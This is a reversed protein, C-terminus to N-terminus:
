KILMMRRIVTEESTSLRYIYLGSALNDPHWTVFYEGQEQTRDVLVKVRQGLVNFVELLVRTRQPIWYRITTSANFPNPFNPYVRFRNPVDARSPATFTFIDGQTLSQYYYIYFDFSNSLYDREGRPWYAYLVDANLGWNVDNYDAGQNYDSLMIFFYERAGMDDPYTHEGSTSDITSLWGMDWRRNPPAMLSDEVFCVNVQRPNQPDSIDFATFPLYGTGAYAYGQDRRYLAGRSAWGEEPGGTTDGQFHLKVSVLQDPTIDPPYISGLAPISLGPCYLSQFNVGATWPSGDFECGSFGPAPAVVKVLIGDVIPYAGEGTINTLGSVKVEGTTRDTVEWRRQENFTVQYSHGTLAAPNIVVAILDGEGEGDHIVSLTDGILATYGPNDGQAVVTQPKFNSEVSPLIAQSDPHTLVATVAFHYHKGDMLPEGTLYDKEIVMYRQLGSPTYASKGPPSFFNTDPLSPLNTRSILGGPKQFTAILRAEQRSSKATPLQWVRYGKFYYGADPYDREIVRISPPHSGWDLVIRRNMSTVNVEPAPVRPTFQPLLRYFQRIDRSNSKLTTVSSLYDEGLGGALAFVVEQTDWPQITFPGSGLLIRVDRPPYNNGTGDIDGTGSVPDGSLPFKTTQGQHPGSGIIFPLTEGDLHLGNLWNYYALTWYYDDLPPPDWNEKIKTYGFSTMPLNKSNLKSKFNFLATDNASPVVPGQLLVYGIAPPALGFPTFQVDQNSGNYVFGMDLTTDCGALDDTYNGLDSDSWIGFFMSDITQTSKNIVRYRRFNTQKLSAPGKNYGWLTVQVELGLPPSGFSSHATTTDLDNVVFWIVQDAGALGPEEGLQPEFVGNRNDDYFPAGYEVPWELWDKQYQQRVDQIQAATVQAPRLHLLEAADSALLEDPVTQWDSRIRYIRVRPHDPSQPVATSIIRGPVTGSKYAHGGVRLQPLEPDSDQVLGGWVFGDTFVVTATGRPYWVGPGEQVPDYGSLGDRSIWGAINNVNFMTHTTKENNVSESGPFTIRKQQEAKDSPPFLGLVLLAALCGIRFNGMM